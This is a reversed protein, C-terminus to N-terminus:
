PRAQQWGSRWEPWQSSARSSRARWCALPPVLFSPRFFPAEASRESACRTPSGRLLILLVLTGASWYEPDAALEVLTAQGSLAVETPSHDTLLAYLAASCGAVLGVALTITMTHIAALSATKRGIVFVAWISGAVIAAMPLAWVLDASVLDVPRLDPIALAGIGLGTWDGLGTFVLAAVGSSLLCPLLLLMAQRRALGVVELM